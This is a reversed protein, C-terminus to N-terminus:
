SVIKLSIMAPFMIMIMVIGLMIFLPLLLKTGAEEGLQRAICKKEELSDCLERELLINVNQTGKRIHQILLSSLMQYKSLNTRKGFEEYVQIESMGNNMSLLSASMEEYILRKKFGHVIKEEYDCVIKKWSMKVTMGAGLLLIFKSIIDTYDMLMQRKQAEEEKKIEQDRFYYVACGACLFLVLIAVSQNKRRLKWRIPKEDIQTPLEIKVKTRDTLNITELEESLRHYLEDKGSMMKPYVTIHIRMDKSFDEYEMSATLTVSEGESSLEEKTVSGNINIINRPYVDWKIQFPYGEYHSSLVLPETIHELSENSGKILTPLDDMLRDSLLLIQDFDYIQPKLEIYIEQLEDEGEIVPILTIKKNESEYTNRKIYNEDIIESKQKDSIEIVLAFVIGAVGLIVAAVPSNKKVM